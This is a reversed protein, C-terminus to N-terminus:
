IIDRMWSPWTGTQSMKAEKACYCVDYMMKKIGTPSSCALSDTEPLLQLRKLQFMFCVVGVDGVASTTQSACLGLAFSISSCLTHTITSRGSLPVATMSDPCVDVDQDHM